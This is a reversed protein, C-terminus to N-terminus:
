GCTVVERKVLADYVDCIPVDLAKRPADAPYKANGNRVGIVRIRSLAIEDLNKGSVEQHVLHVIVEPFFLTFVLHSDAIICDCVFGVDPLLHGFARLTIFVFHGTTGYQAM